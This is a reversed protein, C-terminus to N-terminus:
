PPPPAGRPRAAFLAPALLLGALFGGIHAEGSIMGPLLTIAINLIVFTASISMLFRGPTTRLYAAPTARMAEARRQFELALVGSIAGSAGVLVIFGGPPLAAFGFGASIIVWGFHALAGAAAACLFLGAYALSGVRREAEPGFAALAVMNFGLHLLGGHLFAHTILATGLTAQPGDRFGAIAFAFREFAWGRLSPSATLAIEITTLALILAVTVPAGAFTMRRPGLSPDRFDLNDPAPPAQGAAGPPPTSNWPGLSQPPARRGHPAAVKPANSSKAPDDVGDSPDPQQPEDAM